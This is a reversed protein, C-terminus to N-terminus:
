ARYRVKFDLSFRRIIDGDTADNMSRRSLEYCRVIAGSNRINELTESVLRSLDRAEIYTEADVNIQVRATEIDGRGTLTHSAVGSIQQLTIQPFEEKEDFAGWVVPFGLPVLAVIFDEVM